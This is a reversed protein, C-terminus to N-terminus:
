GKKRKLVIAEHIKRSNVDEICIKNSATILNRIEAESYHTTINGNKHGLLDQRDEFSVDAARLRRGFTHKLDHVRALPLAAKKRSNKWATNNIKTVPNGKYTFVFEPHQGRAMEIAKRAEKNVVVIREEANKTLWDPLIFISHESGVLEYEWDWRLQCVEQERCGTNVKFLCMLQLHPPMVGFLKEQDDYSLTFPKRADNWKVDVIMPFSGLWTLGNHDRWQGYALRLVRRLVSLAANVTKSKRGQEKRSKIFPKLVEDHIEHLFLDGLVDMILNLHSENDNLSALHKNEEVYRKIAESFYRKKRVGFIDAQRAEDILRSMIQQAEIFNRTGTSKNIRRGNVRKDVHWIGMIKFLGPITNKRM